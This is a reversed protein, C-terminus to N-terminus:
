GALPVGETAMGKDETISSCDPEFQQEPVTKAEPQEIALRNLNKGQGFATAPGTSNDAACHAISTSPPRPCRQWGEFFARRLYGSPKYRDERNQYISLRERPPLDLDAFM